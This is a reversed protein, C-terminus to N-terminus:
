KIEDEVVPVIPSLLRDQSEGLTGRALRWIAFNERFEPRPDEDDYVYLLGFSGPLETGVRRLLELIEDFDGARHNRSGGILLIWTDSVQQLSLNSLGPRELRAMENKLGALVYERREYDWADDGCTERLNFWGYYNIM